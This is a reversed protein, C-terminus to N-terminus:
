STARRTDPATWRPNASVMDDLLESSGAGSERRPPRDLVGRPSSRRSFLRSRILGAAPPGELVLDWEEETFDAKSTM